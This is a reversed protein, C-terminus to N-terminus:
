TNMFTDLEYPQAKKEVQFTLRSQMEYLVRNITM